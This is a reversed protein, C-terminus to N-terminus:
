LSPRQQDARLLAGDRITPPQTKGADNRDREREGLAALEDAIRLDFEGADRFGVAVAVQDCPQGEVRHQFGNSEIGRARRRSGSAIASATRRATRAATLAAQFLFGIHWTWTSVPIIAFGIIPRSM